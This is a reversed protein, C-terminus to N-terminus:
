PGISYSGVKIAKRTANRPRQIIFSTDSCFHPVAIYRKLFSHILFTSRSFALKSQFYFDSSCLSRIIFTWLMKELIREKLREKQMKKLAIPKIEFKRLIWSLTELAKESLVGEPLIIVCGDDVVKVWVGNCFKSCNLAFCNKKETGEPRTLIDVCMAVCTTRDRLPARQAIKRAQSIKEPPRLNPESSFKPGLQLIKKCKGPLCM